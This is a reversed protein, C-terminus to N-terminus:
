YRFDADMKADVMGEDMSARAYYHYGSNEKLEDLAYGSDSFGRKVSNMGSLGLGTKWVFSMLKQFAEDRDVSLLESLFADEPSQTNQEYFMNITIGLANAIRPLLEADPSGGREWKSVSQTTVGVMKGLEEQTIGKKTRYKKIQEGIM